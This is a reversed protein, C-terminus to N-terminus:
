LEGAQLISAPLSLMDAERRGFFGPKPLRPRHRCSGPAFLTIEAGLVPVGRALGALNYSNDM